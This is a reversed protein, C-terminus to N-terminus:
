AKSKQMPAWGGIKAVPRRYVIILWIIAVALLGFSLWQGRTLGFLQYGIQVDPMRFQEGIIRATCYLFGFWGGIVGPKQPKRWIWCLIIFVLLGELVAQYLQSPHRPTLAVSLATVVAENGHQVAKILAEITEHIHASMLMDHRTYSELWATWTQANVSITEGAESKFEKLADVAPALTALKPFDKQLWLNMEQPFKVAWALTAPAERGYLEGNIFNAIRGFFFGVGGGLAVMDMAHLVPMKNARAYLYCVTMVGLIGGHSAMGGENVKLVGWYPFHNDFATFLDPAYFICYGLRGGLLVGIAVYTTFDAIAEPKFLTGGRRSMLLISYYGSIFGSLYALGYWRIGFTETFQIAFPSLNHVYTM